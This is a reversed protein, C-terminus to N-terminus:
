RALPSGFLLLNGDPDLHAFERMRYDTDAPARRPEVGAARFEGALIDADAVRIYVWGATRAPDHDPKVAFHLEVGDREAIAFEADLVSSGGPASIRFGLLAYHAATRGMDTSPLGPAVSHLRGRDPIKPRETM